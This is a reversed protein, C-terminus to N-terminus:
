RAESSDRNTVPTSSLTSAPLVLRHGPHAAEAPASAACGDAVEVTVRKRVLLLDLDAITELM